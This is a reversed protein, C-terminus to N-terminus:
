VAGNDSLVSAPDGQETDIQQYQRDIDPGKFVLQTHSHLCYRSHDDLWNSIEVDTRRGALRTAPM